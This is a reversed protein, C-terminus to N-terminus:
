IQFSLSLLFVSLLVFQFVAFRFCFRHIKSQYLLLIFEDFGDGYFFTSYLPKLFFREFYLIFGLYHKLLLDEM